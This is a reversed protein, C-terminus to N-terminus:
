SNKKEFLSAIADSHRMLDTRLFHLEVDDIKDYEKSEEREIDRKIKIIKDTYKTGEKKDLYSAVPILLKLFSSIM